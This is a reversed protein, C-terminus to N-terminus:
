KDGVKIKKETVQTIKAFSIEIFNTPAEAPSQIFKGEPSILFYAPIHTINYSEKIKKNSGYHVFTWNYHHKKLFEDMTSQNKDISVSIFAIKDGYKQHLSEMVKMEQLCTINRTAWFNLYVYKGKYADLTINKGKSDILRFDPAAQGISLKSTKLLINEALKRHEPFPSQSSITEFLGDLAKKHFLDTYYNEYLGKILVLECLADNQLLSDKKLDTLAAKYDKKNIIDVFHIGKKSQTFMVLHNTFYERFFAMYEPNQYLIPKNKIYKLFLKYKNSFSIQDLCAFSYEIFEKFFTNNIKEYNAYVAKKYAQIKPGAQKTILLHYHSDLFKDYRKNFDIILNNLETTDQNHIKLPVWSINGELKSTASDYASMTVNYSKNPELYIHAGINEIRLFAKITGPINAKIKFAGQTDILTSSLQVQHFTIYDEYYFLTIEGGKYSNAKGTITVNQAYSGVWTFLLLIHLFFFKITGKIM